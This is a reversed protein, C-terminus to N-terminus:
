AEILPQYEDAKMQFTWAIVEQCTTTTPPVQLMYFKDTLNSTTMMLGIEVQNIHIIAIIMGMLLNHNYVIDV